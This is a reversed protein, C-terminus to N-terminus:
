APGDNIASTIDLVSALRDGPPIDHEAGPDILFSSMGVRTPAAYDAEFSDGVFVADGAICGIRDLAATYISTHPKLWGHEVSLVVASVCEEIGMQQLLNPVMDRDHTNSVIAITYREALQRILDAVGPIPTLHRAWEAVYSQGLTAAEDPTLNLQAANSFANAADTMSFERLTKRASRELESSAADWTTVFTDHDLQCGLSRVLQHTRPSGLQSRDPQYEVLTGFFDFLVAKM